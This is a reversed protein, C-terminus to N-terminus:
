TSSSKSRCRSLAKTTPTMASTVSNGTMTELNAQFRNYRPPTAGTAELSAMFNTLWGCYHLDGPDIGNDTDPNGNASVYFRQWGMDVGDMLIENELVYDGTQVQSIGFSYNSM